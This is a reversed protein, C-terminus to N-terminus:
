DVRYRELELKELGNEMKETEAKHRELVTILAYNALDLLTDDISEDTVKNQVHATLLNDLRNLKDHMRVLMSVAGFKRFTEETSPGYDHRKNTFIENMKETLNKFMQLEDEIRM